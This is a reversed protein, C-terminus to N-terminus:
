CENVLLRTCHYDTNQNKRIEWILDYEAASATVTETIFASVRNQNVTAVTRPVVINKRQTGKVEYYAASPAYAEGTSRNIKLDVWRRDNQTLEQYTRDM